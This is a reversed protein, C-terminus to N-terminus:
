AVNGVSAVTNTGLPTFKIYSDQMMTPSGATTASFDIQPTVTGGANMRILGKFQHVTHGTSTANVVTSAVTDVYCSQQATTAVNVANNQGVVYYKISTVSAGGGLAFAMAVTATNTAKQIHYFGEFAYTTSAELTWVDTGAPFCSQVGTSTSLAFGGAPVIAFMVSPSVGRASAVPTTYFAKGDYEMSGAEAATLLTGSAIEIPQTNATATGAALKLATITPSSFLSEIKDYVANQTTAKLAGNWGAGYAADSVLAGHISLAQSGHNYAILDMEPATILTTSGGTQSQVYFQAGAFLTLIMIQLSTQDDSTTPVTITKTGDGANLVVWGAYKAQSLTLTYDANDMDVIVYDRVNIAINNIFTQADTEVVSAAPVVAVDAATLGTITHDDNWDSPQTIDSILTGAPYLGANIYENLKAQTWDAIQNVKPHVITVM